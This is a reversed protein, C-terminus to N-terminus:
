CYKDLLKGINEKSHVGVLKEVLKQDKFILITPISTVGYNAVSHIDDDVNIKVVKARGSYEETLKDVIPTVMRCPACWAAWFDLLVCGDEM